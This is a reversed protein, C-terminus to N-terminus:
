FDRTVAIDRMVAEPTHHHRNRTRAAEEEDCAQLYSGLERAHAVVARGFRVRQASYGPLAAALDNDASNLADALAIADGAAKSVGMGCHPRAVFAADGLLAIRGHAMNQSELDFIAQFFPMRTKAVVEAFQPSLAEQASRRMADLVEPRILPPPIAMDHRRGHIDTCLQPLERDAHTPRYWVFNYCREGARTSNGFGAVPYGLMHERPALSFGFRPILDCHTAPTLENEDVLGRWAVYGAYVPRDEPVLQTRVTSRIGDAAVLLDGDAQAGNGFRASVSHTNQEVGSCAHDFHYRESPLAEKLLAYLRAWTTLCQRIDLTGVTAGSRDFAVRGAIDVGFSDDIGIGIRKLAAFLDPHTIIGAGRGALGEGAQEYVEVDWGQRHLLNAAFLGGLSGGIVLARPPRSAVPM